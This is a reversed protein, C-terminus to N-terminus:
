NHSYRGCQESLHATPSVCSFGIPTKNQFIGWHQWYFKGNRFGLCNKTSGLSYCVVGCQPVHNPSGPLAPCLTPSPSRSPRKWAASETIRYTFLLCMFLVPATMQTNTCNPHQLSNHADEKTKYLAASAIFQGVCAIAETNRHNLGTHWVRETNKVQCCLTLSSERREKSFWQAM